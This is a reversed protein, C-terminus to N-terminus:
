SASRASVLRPGSVFASGREYFRWARSRERSLGIRTTASVRGRYESDAVGLWLSPDTCLDVGDDRMDIAMAVTLRGPGRALDRVPSSGRREKMLEIGEIPELARVLVGAGIGARESSVNLCYYMGYIFYVYAHGRTLYLSGNRRTQGRFAHGAADGVPYAETEVIRGSTRRGRLDHVLMKGVLYRALEITDVPLDRRRLRKIM